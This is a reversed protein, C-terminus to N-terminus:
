SVSERVSEDHASSLQNYHKNVRLDALATFLLRAETYIRLQSFSFLLHSAEQANTIQSRYRSLKLAGVTASCYTFYIACAHFLMLAELLQKVHEITRLM